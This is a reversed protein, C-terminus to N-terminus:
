KVPDLLDGSTFVVGASNIAGALHRTPTAVVKADATVRTHVM